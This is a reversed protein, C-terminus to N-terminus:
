PHAHSYHPWTQILNYLATGPCSTQGADRHGYLRYSGAIKGLQVGCAILNKVATLAKDNPVHSDFSGIMSAAFGKSNYQETHAGVYGWGRGEYVNGDEGVLFSYGIDSWGNHGMHYSQISQVRAICGARDSCPPTETHHIFFEPAPVPMATHATAAKAGWQSRTVINVNSCGGSGGSGTPICCRRNAAGSCLGSQYSGSCHISDDQCHGSAATCGEDAGQVQFVLALVIAVCCAIM